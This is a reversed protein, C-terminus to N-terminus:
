RRLIVRGDEAAAARLDVMVGPALAERLAPAQMLAAYARLEAAAHDASVAVRRGDAMHLTLMYPRTADIEVVRNGPLAPAGAAQLLERARRLGPDDLVRGPAPIPVSGVVLPLGGAAEGAPPGIVVNGADVVAQTQGAQVRLDPVRERLDIWLAGPYVRRVDAAAVHPHTSLRRSLTIPDAEMVALGPALAAAALVEAGTLTVNGSLRVRELPGTLLNWGNWCVGAALWALM